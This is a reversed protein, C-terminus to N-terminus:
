DDARWGSFLEAEREVRVVCEPCGAKRNALFRPRRAGVGHVRHHDFPGSPAAGIAAREYEGEVREVLAPAGVFRAWAKWARLAEAEDDCHALSVALDPDPHLLSVEYGFGGGDIAAFRLLVGTFAAPRLAIRMSVGQRERAIVILDRTLSVTRKRGDARADPADWKLTEQSGPAPALMM